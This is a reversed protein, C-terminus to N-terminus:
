NTTKQVAGTIILGQRTIMKQTNGTIIDQRTVHQIMRGKLDFLASHGAAITTTSFLHQKNFHSISTPIITYSELEMSIKQSQQITNISISGVDPAYITEGANQSFTMSFCDKYTKEKITITGVAKIRITDTGNVITEGDVYNKKGILMMTPQAKLSDQSFVMGDRVSYYSYSTMKPTGNFIVSSEVLFYRSGNYMTDRLTINEYKAEQYSSVSITKGCLTLQNNSSHTPFSLSYLWKNGVNVPMYDASHITVAVIALAFLVKLTHRM